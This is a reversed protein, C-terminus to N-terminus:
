ADSVRADRTIFRHGGMFRNDWRLIEQKWAYFVGDPHHLGAM